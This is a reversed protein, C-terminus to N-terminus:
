GYGLCASMYMYIALSMVCVCVCVGGRRWIQRDRKKGGRERERERQLRIPDLQTRLVLCAPWSSRSGDVTSLWRSLTSAALRIVVVLIITIITVCITNQVCLKYVNIYLVHICQTHAQKM